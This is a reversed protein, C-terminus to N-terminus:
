NTQPAAATPMHSADVPKECKGAHHVNAKFPTVGCRICWGLRKRAEVLNAPIDLRKSPGSNGGRPGASPKPKGGRDGHHLRLASVEHALAAVQAALTSTWSALPPALEQEEDVLAGLDMAVNTSSSGHSGSSAGAASPIGLAARTADSRCVQLIASQLTKHQRDYVKQRLAPVLGECFDFLLAPQFEPAESNPLRTVQQQYLEAYRSAPLSPGRAILARLAKRVIYETEVFHWRARLSRKFEDWTAPEGGNQAAARNYAKLADGSLLAASASVRAQDNRAYFVHWRELLELWDDVALGVTGSWRDPAPISTSMIVQVQPAPAQAHGQAQLEAQQLQAQQAQQRYHQLEAQLMALQEPTLAHAGPLSAASPSLSPASTASM